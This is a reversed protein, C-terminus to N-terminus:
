ARNAAFWFGGSPAFATHFNQSYVVIMLRHFYARKQTLRTIPHEPVRTIVAGDKQGRYRIQVFMFGFRIWYLFAGMRIALDTTM